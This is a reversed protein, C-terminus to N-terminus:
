SQDAFKITLTRNQSNFSAPYARLDSRAPGALVTGSLNYQAGHCPCNIIGTQDPEGVVCGKHTCVMSHAEYHGASIRHILIPAGDPGVDTTVMATGDASLSSVDLTIQAATNGAKLPRSSTCGDFASIVPLSIFVAGLALGAKKLFERRNPDPILHESKTEM